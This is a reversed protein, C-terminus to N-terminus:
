VSSEHGSQRVVSSRASHLVCSILVQPVPPQGGHHLSDNPALKGLLDDAFPHGISALLLLLEVLHPQAVDSLSQLHDSAKLSSRLSIAPCLTCGHSLTQLAKGSTLKICANRSLQM